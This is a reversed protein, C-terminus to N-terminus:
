DNLRSALWDYREQMEISDIHIRNVYVAPTSLLRWTLPNYYATVYSWELTASKLQGLDETGIMYTYVNGPEFFIERNIVYFVSPSYISM